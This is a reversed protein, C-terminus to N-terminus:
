PVFFGNVVDGDPISGFGLSFPERSEIPKNQSDEILLSPGHKRGPTDGLGEFDRM